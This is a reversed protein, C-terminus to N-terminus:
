RTGGPCSNIIQNVIKQAIEDDSTNAHIRQPALRAAELSVDQSVSQKALAEGVLGAITAARHEFGSPLRMRIREIKIM